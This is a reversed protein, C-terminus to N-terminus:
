GDGTQGWGGGRVISGCYGRRLVGEVRPRDAATKKETTAGADQRSKQRERREQRVRAKTAGPKRTRADRYRTDPLGGPTSTPPSKKVPRRRVVWYERGKRRERPLDINM